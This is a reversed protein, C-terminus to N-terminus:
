DWNEEILKVAQEKTLGTQKLAATIKKVDLMLLEQRIKQLTYENVCISSKAGVRSVVLGEEELVAYAKQVTNPNVGLLASLMRRSPLIEGDKIEGSLMGRKIYLIIQMYIPVLSDPIFSDFTIM